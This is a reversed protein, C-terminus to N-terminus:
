KDLIFGCLVTELAELHIKLAELGDIETQGPMTAECRLLFLRPKNINPFELFIKYSHILFSLTIFDYESTDVRNVMTNEGLTDKITKLVSKHNKPVNKKPLRTYVRYQKTTVELRKIQKKRVIENMALAIFKQTWYMTPYKAQLGKKIDLNSTHSNQKILKKTMKMVLKIIKKM